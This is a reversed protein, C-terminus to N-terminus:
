ARRHQRLKITVATAGNVPIAFDVYSSTEVRSLRFTVEAGAITVSEPEARGPLLVHFDAADASCTVTMQIAGEGLHYDYGLCRGSNAYTLKVEADDVQAAPWRPSIRVEDFGKGIDEVGALGATLAYLMASSGWGDTPEAEPSTSTEVSAPTGDPFYWLYTEKKESILSHYRELIDVGYEEFGHDFAAKALEGGVLPMIGGNVYAGGILKSDGFIGDPFPPDISFWEAFADTEDRRRQYERIISVAMEHTAVGRNIDMPNSLSLQAAEDVDRIAVPNLKVFHTYFRGNWCTTNMNGRLQDAQQRWYEARDPKGLRDHLQAMIRFAEYYGSNDGHMIGWFTHDDIQFQLWDHTGASYAFDWTDITYARKVLGHTADWYWRHAQIYQLAKEMAPLLQAIWEDDACAQWALYAGKVFRYEVDAEVPVRVYKTWNERESPLKEPFTTFYDFIRGSASQTEAFHEVASTADAHFYRGTRLMDSHDRIWLSKADPTRFGSVQRGDINLEMVDKQLFSGILPVLGDLCRRGTSIRTERTM